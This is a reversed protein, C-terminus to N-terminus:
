EDKKTKINSYGIKNIKHYMLNTNRYIRNIEQRFFNITHYKWVEPNKELNKFSLSLTTAYENKEEAIYIPPYLDYM